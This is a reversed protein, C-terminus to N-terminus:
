ASKKLGVILPIPFPDQGRGIAIYYSAMDLEYVMTMLRELGFRGRGRVEVPEKGISSLIHTFANALRSDRDTEGRDRLIVPVFAAAPEEWAEIENHFLEPMEDYIAHKKSNENIANKFRVGAGRTVRTGYIAPTKGMLRLALKKSPNKTTMVSVGIEESLEKMGVIAKRAEDFSGLGLVADVLAFCSFVMFPLVYRPALMSPIQIHQVGLRRSEAELMGGCSSSVLHAGRKLATKMMSVTEETQGSASCAIVLSRTMDQTQIVGKNVEAEIGHRSWLWSALIDGAAASGGMGLIHVKKAQVHELTFKVELGREALEPWAAYAKHVRMRDIKEVRKPSFREESNAEAGEDSM